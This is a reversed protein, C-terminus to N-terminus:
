QYNIEFITTIEKLLSELTCNKGYFIVVESDKETDYISINFERIFDGYLLDDGITVDSVMYYYSEINKIESNDFIDSIDTSDVSWENELLSEKIGLILLDNNDTITITKNSKDFYDLILIKCEPSSCSTLLLLTLLILTIFMSTHPKIKGIFLTNFNFM